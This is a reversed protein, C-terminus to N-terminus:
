PRSPTVATENQHSGEEHGNPPEAGTTPVIAGSGDGADAMHSRLWSELRAEAQQLRTVPSEGKMAGLGALRRIAEAVTFKREKRIERELEADSESVQADQNDNMYKGVGPSVACASTPKEGM